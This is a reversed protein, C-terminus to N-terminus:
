VSRSLEGWADEILNLDPSKALWELITVNLLPLFEQTSKATHISVGDQQLIADRIEHDDQLEQLFPFLYKLLKQACKVATQKGIWRGGRAQILDQPGEPHCALLVAGLVGGQEFTEECVGHARAKHHKKLNPTPKRKIYSAFKSTRLVCLATTRKVVHDLAVESKRSSMKKICALRFIRRVTRKKLITHRGVKKIRKSGDKISLLTRVAKESRGVSSVIKRNSEVEAHTGIILGIERETLLNDRSM